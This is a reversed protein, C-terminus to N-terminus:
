GRLFCGVGARVVVGVTEPDVDHKLLDVFQKQTMQGVETRGMKAVRSLSRLQSASLDRALPEAMCQALPTPLGADALASRVQAEKTTACASLIALGALLIMIRM